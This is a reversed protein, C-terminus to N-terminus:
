VTVAKKLLVNSDMVITIPGDNLLSVKMDTGFKGKEVHGIRKELEDAFHLYLREAEDPKAAGLYDPRNGKRYDACLTFNSIVLASGGIDKVSLNMKDDSDSFIRLKSIKEALAVSDTETDGDAVGLLIMLGIGCSGIVKGETEVSASAVRQLVAKM